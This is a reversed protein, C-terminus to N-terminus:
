KLNHYHNKMSIMNFVYLAPLKLLDYSKYIDDGALDMLLKNYGYRKGLQTHIDEEEEMARDRYTKRSKTEKDPKLADPVDFNDEDDIVSRTLLLTSYVQERFKIMKDIPAKSLSLDNFLEAREEVNFTYPELEINGWEDVKYRRYYLAMLRNSNLNYDNLIYHEMEIWEAFLMNNLNIPEYEVGKYRIRESKGNLPKNLFKIQKIIEVIERDTLRYFYEDDMKINLLICLQHFLFTYSDYKDRFSELKALEILQYIKLEDWSKPIKKEMLIM